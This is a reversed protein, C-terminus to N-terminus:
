DADVATEGPAAASISLAHIRERMLDGLAAFVLRQRAVRSKGAFQESVVAVAFHTEGEPRHGAHGIHQHSDDRVRLQVPALARTLRREIEDKVMGM